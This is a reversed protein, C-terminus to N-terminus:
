DVIESLAESFSQLAVFDSTINEINPETSFRVLVNYRVPDILCHQSYLGVAALFPKDQAANPGSWMLSRYGTKPATSGALNSKENIEDVNRVQMLDEIFERPVIRGNNVRGGDLIM